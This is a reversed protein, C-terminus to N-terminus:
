SEGTIGCSFPSDHLRPHIDELPDERRDARLIHWLPWTRDALVYRVARYARVASCACWAPCRSPAAPKVVCAGCAACDTISGAESSSATAASAAMGAATGTAPPVSRM